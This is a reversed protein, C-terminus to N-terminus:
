KKLETIVELPYHVGNFYDTFIKRLKKPSVMKEDEIAEFQERSMWEVRLVNDSALVEGSLINASFVFNFSHSKGVQPYLGVLATLEVHVSAEEFAERIAGVGVEEGEELGGGPLNWQEFIEKKGEFVFLIKGEKEIIVSSNIRLNM